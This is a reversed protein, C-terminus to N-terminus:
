NQKTLLSYQKRLKALNIQKQQEWNKTGYNTYIKTEIIFQINRNIWDSDTFIKNERRALELKLLDSKKFFDTSGIHSVDADCIIEELLNNPKHPIKTARICGLVVEIEEESCECALLLNKAYNASLEEHNAWTKIHGIDHLWAAATLLELEKISVNEFAAIIKVMEVVEKVHDINHYINEPPNNKSFYEIVHNKIAEINM